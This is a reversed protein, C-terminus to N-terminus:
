SSATATATITIQGVGASGLTPNCNIFSADWSGGCILGGPSVTGISNNSSTFSIDAAVASGSSDEPTATITAVGGQNLSITSPTVVVQTVANSTNNGGGCGPLFALLSIAAIAALVPVSSVRQM